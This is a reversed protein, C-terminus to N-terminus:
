QFMIASEGETYVRISIKDRQVIVDNFKLDKIDGKLFVHDALPVRALAKGAMQRSQELQRNLNMNLKDQIVSRITGHLFWDASQLLLSKTQMDFDVDEVSFVNTKPNYVPKATLYFVGDLSGQTELKVVLDDGNGYLDFNKIIISKGDSDFKKNLLLPAAIARLDKYFLDANLAIRFTKDFANVLKLNPLPLLSQSAPEPGVVLEAFTSIGVSLRVKNNQASLPYLMIERPTLKLWANYSKDLMIPRQVTNWAKAVQAKLPILDNIKQAILDSLLRQVPQTIGEVISRPKISLPGIAVEEALLDSLGQYYIEAHLRWDPTIGATVKFKLKLPIATTEFMGYSLSMSIPLTVYLYNDAASVSISGNRVLDATLGWSNATGKYLERRITENLVKALEVTSTEIPINLTSAEKRLITRFAEDRPREATLVTVGACSSLTIASLLLAVLTLTRKKSLM